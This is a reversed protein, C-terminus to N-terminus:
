LSEPIVTQTTARSDHTAAPEASNPKPVEPLRVLKDVLSDGGSVTPSLQGFARLDTVFHDPAQLSNLLQGCSACSLIHAGLKEVETEPLQGLALRELERPDPCALSKM